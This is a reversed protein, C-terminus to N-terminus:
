RNLKKFVFEFGFGQRQDVVLLGVGGTQGGVDGSEDFFFVFHFDDGM